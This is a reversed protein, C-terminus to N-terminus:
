WSCYGCEAAYHLVAAAPRLAERNRTAPALQPYLQNAAAVLTAQNIDALMNKGIRAILKVLRKEDPLKAAELDLCKFDAYLHAAREFSIAEGPRPPSSAALGAWVEKAIERATAKDRTKTSIEVDRGTVPHAGRALYFPNNKRKGPPILTFPM